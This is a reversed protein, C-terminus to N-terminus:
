SKELEFSFDCTHKQAITHMQEVLKAMKKEGEKYNAASLSLGYRPAGLYNVEIDKEGASLVKKLDDVGEPGWCVLNVTGSVQVTPKKINKEALAVIEAKLAQPLDVGALADEKGEMAETFATWVDGFEKSLIESVEPATLKQKSNKIALALLM